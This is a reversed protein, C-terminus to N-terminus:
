TLGTLKGLKRRNNVMVNGMFLISGVRSDGDIPKQMGEEDMAFNAKSHVFLRIHAGNLIYLTGSTCFNDWIIEAGKFMLKEIGLDAGGSPNPQYRVRPAILSELVEHVAQTTVMLDPKTTAGRGECCNNYVSKISTLGNTATSGVSTAVQNRWSTNTGFNISAYTGSTTTTAIAAELGTLQLNSSGTGDSYLGTAIGDIMDQTAQDKKAEVLNLLQEGGMNSRRERGSIAVSTAAQKWTFFATTQGVQPTINYSGYDTYWTFTSGKGTLVPVRMREGGDVVKLREGTRFWKLLPTANYVNDHFMGSDLAKRLTSSLLPGYSDTLSSEGVM